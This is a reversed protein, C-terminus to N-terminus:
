QAGGPAAKAGELILALQHMAYGGAVGKRTYNAHMVGFRNDAGEALMLEASFASRLEAVSMREADRELRLFLARAPALEDPLTIEDDQEHDIKSAKLAADHDVYTGEAERNGLPVLADDLAMEVDLGLTKQIEDRADTYGSDVAAACMVVYRQADRIRDIAKEIAAQTIPSTSNRDAM